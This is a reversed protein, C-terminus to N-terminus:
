RGAFTYYPRSSQSDAVLIFGRFYQLSVFALDVQHEAKASWRQLLPNRCARRDSPRDTMTKPKFRGPAPSPQGVGFLCSIVANVVSGSATTQYQHHSQGSPDNRGQRQQRKPPTSTTSDNLTFAERSRKGQHYSIAKSQRLWSACQLHDM